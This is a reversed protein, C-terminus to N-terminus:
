ICSFVIIIMRDFLLPLFLLMGLCRIEIDGIMFWYNHNDLYNSIQVLISDTSNVKSTDYTYSVTIANVDYSSYTGDGDLNNDSDTDLCRFLNSDSESSFSSGGYKSAKAPLNSLTYDDKYWTYSDSSSDM